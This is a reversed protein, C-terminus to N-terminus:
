VPLEALCVASIFPLDASAAIIGVFHSPPVWLLTDRLMNAGTGSFAAEGTATLDQSTSGVRLTSAATGEGFVGPTRVQSDAEILSSSRRYVRTETEAWAFRLQGGGAALVEYEVVGRNGATINMPGGGGLLVLPRYLRPAQTTSRHQIELYNM